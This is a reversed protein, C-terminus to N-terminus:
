SEGQYERFKFDVQRWVERYNGEEGEVKYGAPVFSAICGCPLPVDLRKTDCPVTTEYDLLKLEHATRLIIEHKHECSDNTPM